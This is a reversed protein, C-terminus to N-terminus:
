ERQLRVQCNNCVLGRAELEAPLDKIRGCKPCTWRQTTPIADAERRSSVWAHAFWGVCFMGVAAFATPVLALFLM